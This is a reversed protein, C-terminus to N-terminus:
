GLVREMAALWRKGFADVDAQAVGFASLWVQVEIKGPAGEITLWLLADNMEAVSLCFGRPPRVFEVRGTFREGTTARLAYAEGAHLAAGADETFLGGARVLRAYAEERTVSVKVRPWAVQREVGRHRELAWRLSLLMFGWGYDTSEFWENEWDEGSFFGSQVLRLVTKAGRAELTWEILAAQEQWAFRREPEWAVIKAEGECDPGWSLFIAGDKGPTVRAGLSFWRKLQEPDTLAKWVEAVPADIVIEREIRRERKAGDKTDSM